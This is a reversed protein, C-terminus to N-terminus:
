ASSKGFIYGLAGTVIAGLLTMGASNQPQAVMVFGLLGLSILIAIAAIYYPANESSGFILGLLGLEQSHHKLEVETLQPKAAVATSVQSQSAAQDSM